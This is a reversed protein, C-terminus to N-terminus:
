NGTEHKFEEIIEKIKEISLNTYNSIMDVSLNNNYMNIVMEKITKEIGKQIGQELGKQIGQELGEKLSKKKVENIISQNIRDNEEKWDYYSGVLNDDKNMDNVVGEMLEKIEPKM